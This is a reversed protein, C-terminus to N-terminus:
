WLFMLSIGSKGTYKALQEHNKRYRIAFNCPPLNSAGNATMLFVRIILNLVTVSKKKCSDVQYIIRSSVTYIELYELFIDEYKWTRLVNGEIRGQNSLFYKWLYNDFDMEIKKQFHKPEQQLALLICSM